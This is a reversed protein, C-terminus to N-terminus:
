NAQVGATESPPVPTAVAEASDIPAPRDLKEEARTLRNNVDTILRRLDVIAGNTQTRFRNLNAVEDELEDNADASVQELGSSLEAVESNMQAISGDLGTIQTRLQSQTEQLIGMVEVLRSQQQDLLQLQGRLRDDSRKASEAMNVQAKELEEFFGQALASSAVSLETSLAENADELQDIAADLNDIEQKQANLETKIPDAVSDIRIRTNESYTDLQTKVQNALQTIQRKTEHVSSLTSVDRETGETSSITLESNLRDIKAQMDAVMLQQQNLYFYGGFAVGGMCLILLVFMLATFVNSRAQQQQHRIKYVALDEADLSLKGPRAGREAGGGRPNRGAIPGTKPEM